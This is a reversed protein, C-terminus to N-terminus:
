APIWWMNLNTMWGDWGLLRYCYQVIFTYSIHEEMSHPPDKSISIISRVKLPKNKDEEEMDEEKRPRTVGGDDLRYDYVLKGEPFPM